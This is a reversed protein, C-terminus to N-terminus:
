IIGFGLAKSGMKLISLWLLCISWLSYIGLMARGSVQITGMLIYNYHHCTMSSFVACNPNTKSKDEICEYFVLFELWNTVFSSSNCFFLCNMMPKWSHAWSQRWLLWLQLCVLFPVFHLVLEQILVVMLSVWGLITKLRTSFGLTYIFNM